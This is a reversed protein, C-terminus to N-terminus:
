RTSRPARTSMPSCNKRTCYDEVRRTRGPNEVSRCAGSQGGTPVRWCRHMFENRLAHTMAHSAAASSATTARSSARGIRTTGPTPTAAADASSGSSASPARCRTADSGPGADSRLCQAPGGSGGVTGVHDGPDAGAVSGAAPTAAVPSRSSAASALVTACVEPWRHGGGGSPASHITSTPRAITAGSEAASPSGSRVASARAPMPTTPDPGTASATNRARASARSRRTRGARPASVRRSATTPRVGARIARATGGPPGGSAPTTRTGSAARSGPRAAVTIVTSSAPQVTRDPGVPTAVAM